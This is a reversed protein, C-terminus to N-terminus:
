PAPNATHCKVWRRLECLTQFVPIGHAEAYAVEGDAGKSDGPMRYLADCVDLWRLDEDIWHQNDHAHRLHRYHNLHPVFPDADMQTIQEGVDIANDVNTQPDGNSYPGAVYVKLRV